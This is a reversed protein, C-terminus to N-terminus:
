PKSKQYKSKIRIFNQGGVKQLDIIGERQLRQTMRWVTTRPLKFKERIETELSEGGSEAIFKIVDRDDPRLQPNLRFIREVDIVRKEEPEPPKKSPKRGSKIVLFAIITVIIVIAPIMLYYNRSSGELQSQPVARANTAEMKAQNALEFAKEYNGLEYEDKAQQLSQQAEVLGLTRGEQQANEISSECESISKDVEIAFIETQIALEKAQSALQEAKVYEEQNFYNKAEQLIDEAESVLINNTKIEDLKTEVENILLLAHEKTGIVGIIYSIEQEGAPMILISQGNINRIAVPIEGLSIITAQEPLIINSDIPSNFNLTWTRGTKDTIDSTFYIIKASGAGLSDIKIGNEINSFDLPNNNEDEVVLDEYIVGFLRIEVQPYTKDFDVYYEIKTVGDAYITLFLENPSYAKQAHVYNVAISSFMLIISIAMILKRNM